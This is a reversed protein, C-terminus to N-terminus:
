NAKALPYGKDIWDAKLSTPLNLIRFNTFGLDKLVTYAPKVNPCKEFPCCGCYIVVLTKKPVSKMMTKFKELKKQDNAAGINKAGPIDNVFGINYIIPKAAADPKNMIAMLAAPEIVQDKNWIAAKGPFSQANAYFGIVLSLLSTLFTFKLYNRM